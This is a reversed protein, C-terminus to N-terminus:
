RRRERYALFVTENPGQLYIDFRYGTRPSNNEAICLLTDRRGRDLTSLLPDAAIDGGPLYARTFLGQLLGRAFVSVAFYPPRGPNVPGPPVTIFRYHGDTDTAARGWGTFPRGDRRLSGPARSLRGATDPQWIEVLADPVTVGAGDYVAGHLEVAGPVDAGVLASDGAFPLGLGFFPGVTQAPTCILESSPM